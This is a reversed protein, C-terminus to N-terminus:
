SRPLLSSPKYHRHGDHDPICDDFALMMVEDGDDDGDDGDDDGGNDAAAVADDVDGMGHDLCIEM